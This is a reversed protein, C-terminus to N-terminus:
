RENELTKLVCKEVLEAKKSDVVIRNKSLEKACKRCVGYFYAKNEEPLLFVSISGINRYSGNSVKIENECRPCTQNHFDLYDLVIEINPHEESIFEKQRRLILLDKFDLSIKKKEM